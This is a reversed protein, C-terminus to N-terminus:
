ESGNDFIDNLEKEVDLFGEKAEWATFQELAEDGYDSIAKHFLETSFLSNDIEYWDSLQDIFYSILGRRALVNADDEAESGTQMGLPLLFRGILKAMQVYEAKSAM